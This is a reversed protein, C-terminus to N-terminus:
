ARSSAVCSNEVLRPETKISELRVNLSQVGSYTTLASVVLTLTTAIAIKSALGMGFVLVILPALALKPISELCIIYPQLIMAYNRSWWMSLGLLAGIVTGIVFGM